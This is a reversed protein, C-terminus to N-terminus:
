SGFDIDDVTLAPQAPATAPAAAAIPQRDPAGPPSAAPIPPEASQGNAEDREAKELSLVRAFKLELATGERGDRTTYDRRELQGEAYVRHGKRLKEAAREAAEDWLEVNLWLTQDAWSGDPQKKGINNALRLNVVAKGSPTFKMEPDAGLNGIVTLRNLM